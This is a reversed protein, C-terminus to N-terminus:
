NLCFFIDDNNVEFHADTDPDDPESVDFSDLLDDLSQETSHRTFESCNWFSDATDIYEPMTVDTLSECHSFANEEILTVKNPITLETLNECTHFSSEAITIVSDPVTYSMRESADPYKILRTGEKNFLVGDISSYNPNNEDVTIKKAYEFLSYDVDEPNMKITGPLHFETITPNNVLKCDEFASFGTIGEDIIIKEVYFPLFDFQTNINTFGNPDILSFKMTDEAITIQLNETPFTVRIDNNDNLKEYQVPFANIAYEGTYDNQKILSRLDKVTSVRQINEYNM